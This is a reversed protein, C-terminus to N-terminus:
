TRPGQYGDLHRVIYPVVGGRGNLRRRLGQWLLGMSAWAAGKCSLVRSVLVWKVGSRVAGNVGGEKIVVDVVAACDVM